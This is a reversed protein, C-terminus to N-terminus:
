QGLVRATAAHWRRRDVHPRLLPFFQINRLRAHHGSTAKESYLFTYPQDDYIHKHIARYLPIQDEELMTVRLQEIGKDVEANQYGISNSSESLDAQSGHWIQFPDGKWDAVWGLITADFEKKRLKQLM